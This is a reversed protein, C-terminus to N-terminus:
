EIQQIRSIIIIAINEKSYRYYNNKELSNEYKTDRVAQWSLNFVQGVSFNQFLNIFTALAQKEVHKDMVPFDHEVLLYKLNEICEYKTILERMEIVDSGWSSSWQDKIITWITNFYEKKKEM